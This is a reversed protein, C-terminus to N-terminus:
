LTLWKCSIKKCASCYMLKAKREQCNGCVDTAMMTRTEVTQQGTKDIRARPLEIIDRRTPASGNVREAMTAYLKDNQVLVALNKQAEKIDLSVWKEFGVTGPAMFPPHTRALDIAEQYCKAAAARDHRDWAMLGLTLGATVQMGTLLLRGRPSRQLRAHSKNKSSAGPRFSNLLKYAEPHSAKTFSMAPDRFFGLFNRWAATLIEQPSGDPVPLPVIAIVNEDKLNKKISRQYYEFSDNIKGQHYFWEAAQFLTWSSM